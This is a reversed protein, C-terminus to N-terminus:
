EFVQRQESPYHFVPSSLQQVLTSATNFSFLSLVAFNKLHWLPAQSRLLNRLVVSTKIVVLYGLLSFDISARM